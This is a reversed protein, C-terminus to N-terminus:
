KFKSIRKGMKRISGVGLQRRKDNKDKRAGRLKGEVEKPIQARSIPM